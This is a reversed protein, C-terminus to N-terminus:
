DDSDSDYSILSKTPKTKQTSTGQTTTNTGTKNVDELETSKTTTKPDGTQKPLQTEAVKGSNDSSLKRIKVPEPKGSADAKRRKKATTWVAPDVPPDTSM